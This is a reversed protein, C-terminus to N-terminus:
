IFLEPNNYIFTEKNINLLIILVTADDFMNYLVNNLTDENILQDPGKEVIAGCRHLLINAKSEAYDEGNLHLSHKVGKLICIARM